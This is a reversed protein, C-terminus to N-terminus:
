EAKRQRVDKKPIFEVNVGKPQLTPSRPWKQQVKKVSSTESEKGEERRGGNGEGFWRIYKVRRPQSLLNTLKALLV